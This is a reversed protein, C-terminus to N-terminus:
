NIADNFLNRKMKNESVEMINGKEELKLSKYGDTYFDEKNAEVYSPNYAITFLLSYDMLNFQSVLSIDYAM